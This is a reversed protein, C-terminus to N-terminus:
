EEDEPAHANIYAKGARVLHVQLAENDVGFLEEPYLLVVAFGAARAERALTDLREDLSPSRPRQAVTHLFSLFQQDQDNRVVQLAKELGPLDAAGVEPVKTEPHNM